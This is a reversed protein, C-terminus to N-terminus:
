RSVWFLVYHTEWNRPDSRWSTTITKEVRVLEEAKQKGEVVGEWLLVLM